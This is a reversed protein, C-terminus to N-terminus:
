AVIRLDVIPVGKRDTQGGMKTVLRSKGLQVFIGKANNQDGLLIVVLKVAAWACGVEMDIVRM